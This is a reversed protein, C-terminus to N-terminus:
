PIPSYGRDSDHPDLWLISTRGLSRLYHIAARPLFGLLEIATLPKRRGESELGLLHATDPEDTYARVRVKTAGLSLEILDFEYHFEYVGHEAPGLADVCHQRFVQITEGEFGLTELVPPDRRSANPLETSPM